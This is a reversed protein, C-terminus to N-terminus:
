FEEATLEKVVADLQANVMDFNAVADMIQYYARSKGAGNLQAALEALEQDHADTIGFYYDDCWGYPAHIANHEKKFRFCVQAKPHKKLMITSDSNVFPISITEHWIIIGRLCNNSQM